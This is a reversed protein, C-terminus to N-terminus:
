FSFGIGLTAGFAAARAAAPPLLIVVLLLAIRIRSM